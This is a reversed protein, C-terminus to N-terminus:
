ISPAFIHQETSRYVASPEPLHTPQPLLIIQPSQFSSTIPSLLQLTNTRPAPPLVNIVHHAPKRQGVCVWVCGGGCRQGSPPVARSVSSYHPLNPHIPSRGGIQCLYRQLHAARAGWGGWRWEGSCVVGLM